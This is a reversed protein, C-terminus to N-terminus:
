MCLSFPVIFNAVKGGMRWGSDLWQLTHEPAAVSNWYNTHADPKSADRCKNNSGRAALISLSVSLLQTKLVASVLFDFPMIISKMLFLPYQQVNPECLLSAKHYIIIEFLLWDSNVWYLCLLVWGPSFGKNTMWINTVLSFVFM